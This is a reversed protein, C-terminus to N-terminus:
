EDFSYEELLTAIRVRYWRYFREKGASQAIRHQAVAKWDLASKRDKWYSITVGVRDSGRVREIGLFGAQRRALEEMRAATEAYEEDWADTRQSTFIVAISGPPIAQM